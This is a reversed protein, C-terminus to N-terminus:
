QSFKLDHATYVRYLIIEIICSSIQVIYFILFKKYRNIRTPIPQAATNRM